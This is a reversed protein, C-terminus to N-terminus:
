QLKNTGFNIGYVPTLGPQSIPVAAPKDDPVHVVGVSAVAARTTSDVLNNVQSVVADPAVAHVTQAYQGLAQQGAAVAVTATKIQGAQIYNKALSIGFAAVLGAVAGWTPNIAAGASVLGSTDNHYVANDIAQATTVAPQLKSAIVSSLGDITKKLDANSPQTAAQAKMQSLQDQAASLSAQSTQVLADAQQQNPLSSCGLHAAVAPWFLFGLMLGVLISVTSRLKM